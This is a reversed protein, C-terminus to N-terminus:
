KSPAMFAAFAAFHAKQDATAGPDVELTWAKTPDVNPIFRLGFWNLMETYDVEETTAVLSHMLPKLDFGAADSATQAFQDATYGHDGSM